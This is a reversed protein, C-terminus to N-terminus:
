IAFLAMRQFWRLYHLTPPTLPSLVGSPRFVPLWGWSVYSTSIALRIRQRYVLDELSIDRLDGRAAPVLSPQAESLHTILDLDETPDACFSAWGEESHPLQQLFFMGPTHPSIVSPTPTSCSTAAM